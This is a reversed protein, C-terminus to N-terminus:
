LVIKAMWKRKGSSVAAPNSDKIKSDQTSPDVGTSCSSALLGQNRM